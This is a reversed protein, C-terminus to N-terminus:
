REGAEVEKLERLLRSVSEEGDAGAKVRKNHYHVLQDIYQDNGHGKLKNLLKMAEKADNSRAEGGTLRGLVFLVVCAVLMIFLLNM